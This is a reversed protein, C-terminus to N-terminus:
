GPEVLCVVSLIETVGCRGRYLVALGEESRPCVISLGGYCYLADLSGMAGM